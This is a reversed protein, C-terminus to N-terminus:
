WGVCRWVGPGVNEVNVGMGSWEVGLGMGRKGVWLGLIRGVGIGWM